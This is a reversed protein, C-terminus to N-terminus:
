PSFANAIISISRSQRPTICTEVPMRAIADLLSLTANNQDRFWAKGVVFHWWENRLTWQSKTEGM